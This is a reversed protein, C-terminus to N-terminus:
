SSGSTLRPAPTRNTSPERQGLQLFIPNTQAFLRSLSLAFTFSLILVITLVVRKTKM